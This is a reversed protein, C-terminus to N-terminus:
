FDGLGKQQMKRYQENLEALTKEVREIGFDRKEVLFKKIGDADPAKFVIKYDKTVPMEKFLKFIEQWPISCHESWKASLFIKEPTKQEKVLALSKKPGLGKVGGPHYDTGVLIALCILQDQNIGLENLLDKLVVIEPKVVVTALARTKKRRGAISLNQILRDAGHLLADYDQSVVAWADGNKVLFAAQADGEYPAQIVPVGMLALLRKADEVMEKTLKVTRAAYKQMAEIDEEAVAEEYKKQAELKAEARKELERHKLEPVEGDFVFVPKLGQKLFSSTRSFLGILHSTIRGKSDTLLRGDPTRITTLFQYLINYADVALVKGKLEEFSIERKAVIEKLNVGM